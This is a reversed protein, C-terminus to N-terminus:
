FAIQIVHLSHCPHIAHRIRHSASRQSASCAHLYLRYFHVTSPRTFLHTPGKIRLTHHQSRAPKAFPRWDCRHVIGISQHIIGSYCAQTSFIITVCHM